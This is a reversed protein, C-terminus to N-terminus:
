DHDGIEDALVDNQHILNEPINTIIHDILTNQMRTPKVIHKKLHFTELINRPYINECASCKPANSGPGPNVRIDASLIINFTTTSNSYYANPHKHRKTKVRVPKAKSNLSQLHYYNITILSVFILLTKTFEGHDLQNSSLQELSGYGVFEQIFIQFILQYWKTGIVLKANIISDFFLIVSYLNVFLVNIGYIEM